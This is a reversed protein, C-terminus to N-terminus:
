LAVLGSPPAHCPVNFEPETAALWYGAPASAFTIGPVFIGNLSEAPRRVLWGDGRDRTQGAAPARRSLSRRGHYTRGCRNGRRSTRRRHFCGGQRGCHHRGPCRDSLPRRCSATMTIRRSPRTQSSRLGLRLSVRLGIGTRRHRVESFLPCVSAEQALRDLGHRLPQHLHAHRAQARRGPARAARMPGVAEVAVPLATLLCAGPLHLQLDRLQAFAAMNGAAGASISCRQHRSDLGM